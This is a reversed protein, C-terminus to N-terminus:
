QFEGHKVMEAYEEEDADEILKGLHLVLAFIERRDLFTYCVDDLEFDCDTMNLELEGDRDLASGVYLRQSIRVLGSMEDGGAQAATDYDEPPLHHYEYDDANCSCSLPMDTVEGM